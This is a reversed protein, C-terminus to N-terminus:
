HVNNHQETRSKILCVFGKHFSGYCVKQNKTIRKVVLPVYILALHGVAEKPGDEVPISISQSIIRNISSDSLGTGLISENLEIIVM